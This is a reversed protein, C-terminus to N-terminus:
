YSELLVPCVDVISMLLVAEAEPVFSDVSSRAVLEVADAADELPPREVPAAAPIPAPAPTAPSRSAKPPQSNYRRPTALPRLDPAFNDRAFGTSSSLM